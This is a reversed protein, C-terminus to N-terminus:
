RKAGGGGKKKKIKAKIKRARLRPTVPFIGDGSVLISAAFVSNNVFRARGSPWRVQVSVTRGKRAAGYFTWSQRGSTVTFTADETTSLNQISVQNPILEGAYIFDKGCGPTITSLKTLVPTAM